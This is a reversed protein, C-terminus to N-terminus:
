NKNTNKQHGSFRFLKEHIQQGNILEDKSFQRNMNKVWKKFPNNTKNNFKKLQKYFRPILGKNSAYNAFTEKWETQQRKM